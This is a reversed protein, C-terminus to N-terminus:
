AVLQRLLTPEIAAAAMLGGMFTGAVGPGTVDQGALLLGHVPTRVRLSPTTLRNATMEMGYMAGDPSHLYRQQSLPTSLEHFRILPALAPFHRCFQALMRSEIRGKLEVYPASRRGDSAHLWPAFAQTDCLAIVEATPKGTREPDKLSPFSVFLGPPADDAVNHRVRGIDENEYIWINAGSAGAAAIDDDFGVYLALHALGPRLGLLTDQWAPATTTDLCSVTNVIGMASIVHNTYETRRAGDQSFAVGFVRGGAVLIHDATAGLQVQGGAAEIVPILTQAFRAPGGVPYYAGANYSDTVLAHELM